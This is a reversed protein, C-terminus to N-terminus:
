FFGKVVSLIVASIEVMFNLSSGNQVGLIPRM